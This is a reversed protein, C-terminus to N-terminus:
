FRLGQVGVGVMFGVGIEEGDEGPFADEDVGAHTVRAEV